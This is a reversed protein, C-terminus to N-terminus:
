KDYKRVASASCFYGLAGHLETIGTCFEVDYRIVVSPRSVRACKQINKEPLKASVICKLGSRTSSVYRKLWSCQHGRPQQVVSRRLCSSVRVNKERHRRSRKNAMDEVGSSAAGHPVCAKERNKIMDKRLLLIYEIDNAGFKNYAM